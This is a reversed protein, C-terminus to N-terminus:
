SLRAVVGEGSAPHHGPRAAPARAPPRRGLGRKHSTM